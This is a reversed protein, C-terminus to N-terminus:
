YVSPFLRSFKRERYIRKSHLRSRLANKAMTNQEKVAGGVAINGCFLQLKGFFVPQFSGMFEPEAVLASVILGQTQEGAHLVVGVIFDEGIGQPLNGSEAIKTGLPLPKEETQLSSFVSAM